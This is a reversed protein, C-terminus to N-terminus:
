KKRITQGSQSDEVIYGQELFKDRLEDSRHFNKEARAQAREDLLKQIAEPIVLPENKLGFVMLIKELYKIHRQADLLESTDLALNLQRCLELVLALVKPTNLDDHIAAFTESEIESARTDEPNQTNTYNYLREMVAFIAEKNKKAQALAEWTFNMQSRYHASLYLMRLDMPSFGREEIDELRYFNGKSKSMKEGSVLLHRTHVWYHAFPAGNGCESQAIEAEHHPFINDEGGTHIDITEGLTALNMASCEIHWGPYGVGWPSEWRMLHGEPAKLWLAFDWPNKKDPHEELRAGVRLKELTNGSLAGYNEFQTVDFFVNSNKEYAYGKEILREIFAIMQAVYHTARPETHAPLINLKEETEHYYKTYYDAIEEPTKGEKAAKRVLKDEGSDGQGLDDATLHGVDTINKVHQVTLGDVETLVRRLTDAAVYSRLNGIHVYDYVTPGCTYMKVPGTTPPVFTEKKKSLTNYLQM